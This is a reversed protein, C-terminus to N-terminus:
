NQPFKVYARRTQDADTAAEIMRGEAVGSSLIVVQGAAAGQIQANAAIAASSVVDIPGELIIWFTDGDVTAAPILPDVLGHAQEAGAAEVELGFGGSTYKVRLGPTLAGSGKVLRLTVPMHSLPSRPGISTTSDIDHSAYVEGLRVDSNFREVNTRGRTSTSIYNSM